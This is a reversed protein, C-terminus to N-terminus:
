TYVFWENPGFIRSFMMVSAGFIGGFVGGVHIGLMVVFFDIVDLDKTYMSVLCPIRSWLCILAFLTVMAAFKSVPILLIVLIFIIFSVVKLPKWLIIENIDIM